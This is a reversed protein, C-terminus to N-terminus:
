RVGPRAQEDLVARLQAELAELTENIIKEREEEPLEWVGEPAVTVAGPGFSITIQPNGFLTTTPPVELTIHTREQEGLQKLSEEVQPDLHVTPAAPSPAGEVTETAQEAMREAQAQRLAEEVTMEGEHVKRAYLEWNPGFVSAAIAPWGMQRTEETVLVPHGLAEVLERALEARSVEWRVEEGMEGALARQVNERQRALDREVQWDRWMQGVAQKWNDATIQVTQGWDNTYKWFQERLELLSQGFEVIVSKGGRFATWLDEIALALIGLPVMVGFLAGPITGGGIGLWGLVKSLLARGGVGALLSSYVTLWRGLPEGGGAKLFRDLAAAVGGVVAGKIQAQGAGMEELLDGWAGHLQLIRFRTTDMVQNLKEQEIRESKAIAEMLIMANTLTDYEKSMQRAIKIAEEGRILPFPMFRSARTLIEATGSGIAQAVYLWAREAAQADGGMMIVADDVQKMAQTIVDAHGPLTAAIPALLESLQGFTLARGMREVESEIAQAIQPYTEGALVQLRTTSWELETAARTAMGVFGLGALGVAGLEARVARLQDSFGGTVDSAAELGGTIEEGAAAGAEGLEELNAQAEESMAALDNMEENAQELTSVLGEEELRARLVLDRLVAM